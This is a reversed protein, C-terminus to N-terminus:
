PPWGPTVTTTITEVVWDPLEGTFGKSAYIDRVEQREAEAAADIEASERAKEAAYYDRESLASTYGVAGM